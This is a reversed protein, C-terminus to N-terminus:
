PVRMCQGSHCEATFYVPPCALNTMPCGSCNADSYAMAGKMLAGGSNVNVATGCDQRCRGGLSVIQCDNSTVCSLAKLAAIQNQVFADIGPNCVPASADTAQCSGCCQDPVQVIMSGPPCNPNACDVLSCDPGCIPCCQGAPTYPRSGAPCKPMACRVSDCSNVCTPCCAGPLQVAMYGPVCNVTCPLDLCRTVSSGGSGLAGASGGGGSTRGGAAAATGGASSVSGSAGVSGGTGESHGGIATGDTTTGGCGVLLTTALSAWM